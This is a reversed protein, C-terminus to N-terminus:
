DLVEGAARARDLRTPEENPLHRMGMAILVIAPIFIILSLMMAGRLDDGLAVSVRGISYPGLALGIFTIFLIYTASAMARMRPLVLDNVTSAAPGIWMGAFLAVVANAIYATTTNDTALLWYIFPVPASATFLGVWLRGNPTYRRLYDSVVGGLTVGAWGMIAATLGLIM